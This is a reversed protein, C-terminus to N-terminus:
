FHTLRIMCDTRKALRLGPWISAFTCYDGSIPCHTLTSEPHGYDLSLPPHFFHAINAQKAM